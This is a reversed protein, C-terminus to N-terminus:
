APAPHACQERAAHLLAILEDVDDATTRHSTVCARLAPVGGSLTCFSIWARGGAVVADALAVLDDRGFHPMSFCMVPLPTANVIEWGDDLLGARLRDGLAIQGRIADRYGDWGAVLLSLFLKLGTFRRSWQISYSYPDDRPDLHDVPMYGASSGFVQPLLHPHRTIFMGAGMAVSLMKHADFAISDAREIGGLLDRTEPLLAAFGGWAADAHFWLGDREAIAALERLPDIAGTTTTGATGVLMVPLLGARRDAAIAAAADRARMAYRGDVAIRVVNGTGLGCLRAAKRMSEHAESSCYIRPTTGNLGHQAWGPVRAALATALATLNAEAGGTTFSGGTAAPDLGFREGFRRLLANEIEVAFPSRAWAALQPNFAAVLADAAVSMTTPSPNFLGFYRPNGMHVQHTRMMRATRQVADAPAVPVAFDAADIWARIAQADLRPAVPLSPVDRLFSEIEATLASWLAAREDEGLLLRNPAPALEPNPTM